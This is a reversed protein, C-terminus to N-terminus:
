KGTHLHQLVFLGTRHHLDGLRRIAQVDRLVLRRGSAEAALDLFAEASLPKHRRDGPVREDVVVDALVVAWGAPRLLRVSEEVLRAVAHPPAHLFEGALIVADFSAPALPLRGSPSLAVTRGEGRPLDDTEDIGPVLSVGTWSQVGRPLASLWATPRRAGVAVRMARTAPQQTILLSMVRRLADREVRLLAKLARVRGVAGDLTPALVNLLGGSEARPRWARELQRHGRNGRAVLQSLTSEVGGIFRGPPLQRRALCNEVAARPGAVFDFPTLHDLVDPGLVADLGNADLSAPVRVVLPIDRDSSRLAEFPFALADDVVLLGASDLQDTVAGVTATRPLVVVDDPLDGDGRAPDIAHVLVPASVRSPSTAM